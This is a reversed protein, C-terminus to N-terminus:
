GTIKLDRYRNMTVFTTIFVIYIGYDFSLNQDYDHKFM